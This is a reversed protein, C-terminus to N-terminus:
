VLYCQQHQHPSMRIRGNRLEEHYQTMTLIDRQGLCFGHTEAEFSYMQM